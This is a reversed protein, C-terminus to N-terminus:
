ILIVDGDKIIEKLRVEMEKKKKFYYCNKNNDKFSEFMNNSNISFTILIDIAKKILYKGLRRHDIVYGKGLELMDGLIAVSRLDNKISINKLSDIAKRASLPNSNYSDNIILRPGKEILEMRGRESKTKELGEKVAKPKEGLYLAASAAL